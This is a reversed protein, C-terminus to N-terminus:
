IKAYISPSYLGPDLSKLRDILSAGPCGDMTKRWMPTHNTLDCKAFWPQACSNTALCVVEGLEYRQGGAGLCYYEVGPLTPYPNDISPTVLDGGLSVTPILLAISVLRWM